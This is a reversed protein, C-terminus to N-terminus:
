RVKPKQISRKHELDDIRDRLEFYRTTWARDGRKFGLSNVECTHVTCIPRLHPPVVCGSEGMYPLRPHGTEQLEVGWESLAWLRASECYEPACCSHPLVCTSACEPRTHAAMQAYAEILDGHM